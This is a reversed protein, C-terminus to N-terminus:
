LYTNHERRFRDRLKRYHIKLFSFYGLHECQIFDTSLILPHVVFLRPKSTWFAYMCFAMDEVTCKRMKKFPFNMIYWSKYIKLSVESIYIRETERQKLPKFKNIYWLINQKVFNLLLLYDGFVGVTNIERDFYNKSKSHQM